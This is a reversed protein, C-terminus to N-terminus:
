RLATGDALSVQLAPCSPETVPLPDLTHDVEAEGVRALSVGVHDVGPDGQGGV